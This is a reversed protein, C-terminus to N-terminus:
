RAIQNPGFRVVIEEIAGNRSILCRTEEATLSSDNRKKVEGSAYHIAIQKESARSYVVPVQCITFIFSDVPIKRKKRQGHVDYFEFVAQEELFEDPDFLIPDFSIIGENIRFGIETLRTIIDEKVQGTMGPQQAGAHKPTHSYPDTPFAGYQQPSKKLAIGDRIDIFHRALRELNEQGAGATRAWIYNEQAALALKSVMHWYICGLGEYGFFTGSRGTFSRHNFIQEFSQELVARESKVLPAYTPNTELRDLARGLDSANRFDGNFHFGGTVDTRILSRDGDDLLKKLLMSRSVVNGPIRNKEIFSPLHRDPYLLYSQQDERYMESARLGDLVELSQEPTLLGSSLAAVQGELMQYLRDVRLKDDPDFALLNYSHYLGDSRRNSEITHDIYKLCSEFFLRCTSAKLEEKEGSLGDQYLVERFESGAHALADVIQWRHDDEIEGDLMALHQELIKLVRRFLFTVEKSVKFSPVHTRSFWDAMFACYRRLYCVTVMSLGSGVLANNADNWEPRQTNLWIGGGPVFNTMKTLAPVLLKEALSVRIIEGKPDPLLKGDSGVSDVRIAIKRDLEFDFDITERPNHRIQAYTRIRYPVQAYTCYLRDLWKDLQQPKFARSWELLKLLYIIQHDGWYGINAWPDDPEPSEWQFGNKTIRYPNYGDATSANLFRFIMSQSFLPYALLLAEWNQFIDRWNGEYDCSISGDPNQLNISFVNWPRTPDGHRRSFTLPLYELGIRLLDPDNVAQLHEILTDVIVPQVLSELVSENQAFVAHNFNRVHRKFDAVNIECGKVPTGGRMVNFLVNSQHRHVRLRDRGLQCGDAASVIKLLNVENHRIDQQIQQLLDTSNKLRDDLNLVDTQDQNIAAVIMWRKEEWPDLEFQSNVFYAGHAARVDTEAHLPEGTRFRNLQRSSLLVTPNEFGFQWVVTSRLGESPEAKDSPISSLYYIGLQSDPLLENKKYADALNSFRLQFNQDIGYPILNQIGDILSISVTEDSVNSIQCRRIFGFQHGVTWGYRFALGADHNIEELWFKNGLHNKYLNRTTHHVQAEFDRFPEWFMVDNALRDIRVITKPGTSERLDSIKDASYYPFLSYDANKRGATLAGRSSVFMWHDNSTTLSIFFEPMLHANTIKYFSEGEIEVYSGTAGGAHLPVTKALTNLDKNDNM